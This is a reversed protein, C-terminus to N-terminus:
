CFGRPSLALASCLGDSYEEVSRRAMSM